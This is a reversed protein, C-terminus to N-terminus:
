KKFVIDGKWVSMPSQSGGFLYIKDHWRTSAFRDLWFPCPGITEWKDHSIDYKEMPSYSGAVKGGFTLIYDGVVSAGFNGRPQPIDKKFGYEKRSHDIFFTGVSKDMGYGGIAYLSNKYTVGANNYRGTTLKAQPKWSKTAEDYLYIEMCNTYSKENTGCVGCSIYLLGNQVSLTSRCWGNPLSAMEKWVQDKLDYYDVRRLFQSSDNIGGAVVIRDNWLAVGAETRPSPVGSLDLWTYNAPNYKMFRGQVGAVVYIMDQYTFAAGNIIEHKAPVDKTWLINIPESDKNGSTSSTCSLFFTWLIPALFLLRIM